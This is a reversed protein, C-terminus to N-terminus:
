PPSDLLSKLDALRPDGGDDEHQCVVLNRNEGCVLCLGKCDSRCLPNIPFSLLMYERVLPELDIVGDEPLILGSQDASRPSFAYLETFEAAVRQQFDSLCRVCEAPLTANLDAQLLLGQPTRTVRVAGHLERLSLDPPLNIQPVDFPIERSYGISQHVIFGLKLRLPSHPNSM